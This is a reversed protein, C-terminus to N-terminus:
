CKILSVIHHHTHRLVPTKDCSTYSGLLYLHALPFLTPVQLIGTRHSCIVWLSIAMIFCSFLIYQLTPPSWTLFPLNARPSLSLCDKQNLLHVTARVPCICQLRCQSFAAFDSHFQQHQPILFLYHTNWYCSKHLVTSVPRSDTVESVTKDCQTGWTM